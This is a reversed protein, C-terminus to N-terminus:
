PAASSLYEDRQLAIPVNGNQWLYDHFHKLNFADGKAARAEALFELTQMKGIQYSIAQGPSAAFFVAEEEATTRDMPVMKELYDAAQAITFEGLALKVDVEVRLARLRAFNYIIERTKPSGDFLGAQLMMEEAYFGTGENAASDYYHRRMRNPHAWSLSLQFFHGPVGEHVIIPRPDRTISLNFYGLTPSPEPLYVTANRGLRTRDTLDFTRGLWGIPALYTPFPQANYHGVWDPVSLLNHERLYDRIKLEEANLRAIVSGISEGIPLEPVGRNRNREIEEFQVARAWEQRGMILLDGPTFPYLAVERLFYRYSSEGVATADSLGVRRSRLLAEYNEFAALSRVLAAQLRRMQAATAHDGLGAVMDRLSAPVLELQHLAADVFPGRLDTLNVAGAELTTPVHGLLRIVQDLRERELPPPPLLLEFIPNLAQAIYFNPQRQWAAVHEMEWRVRALASGMLRYDTREEATRATDSLSRWVGEFAALEVQQVRVAEATWDPLWRAPRVIRPIDDSTAPQTRARWEWFRDGLEQVSHAQVSPTVLLAACAVALMALRTGLM